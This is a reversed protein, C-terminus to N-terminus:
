LLASSDPLFIHRITYNRIDVFLLGCCYCSHLDVFCCNAFESDLLGRSNFVVWEKERRGSLLFLCRSSWYSSDFACSADSHSTLSFKAFTSFAFNRALLLFYNGFILVKDLSTTTPDKFFFAFREVRYPMYENEMCIDVTM